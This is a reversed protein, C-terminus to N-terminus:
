EVPIERHVMSMDIGQSRRIFRSVLYIGLAIGYLVLMYWFSGRHSEFDIGYVSNTLWEYIAFGLIVIFGAAAVTILPIGAVRYRGIPSANYIEPKRWPLIAAAIASGLFTIAIVETAALTWDFFDANYAYFYSIPIAPILMLAIAVIPVGNRTVKSAAEPLVRDFASAFVVRTSSLFVTGVWGFFWLALLGVLLFQWFAGDMLFATLLGPYPFVGLPGEGSWYGNNSANYFDWGFTKAFLGFMIAALITTAILAGGMAYVNKRFDSAGRVEGYLTAGWNSWLNFFLIFPILLFTGKLAGLDTVGTPTGADQALTGEYANGTTGLVDASQSNLASIFDAKSNVLLLIFMFALGILGGFFCFKQFRAYTRMGLSIILSALLAVIVSAWFLGKPESFFSVWGDAGVIAGLPVFVEVNLINAYIPVWHWLIFWWGCAALVFGIGGGLVRSIWIYDGGARPMAAILSAYTIAQLVLYAGSLVVAWLLSADPIFVAYSFIFLGLTILNISFFAYIFADQVAWGRVLGTARRAFLSREQYPVEGVTTAM